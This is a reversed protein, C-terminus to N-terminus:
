QEDIEEREIKRKLYYCKDPMPANKPYDTIEFGAGQYCRVAPENHRYVFLGIEDYDYETKGIAILHEILRKGISEGRMAPNVILRAVHVRDNRESLQGFAAFEGAPNQLRFSALEGWYCDEYFTDRTFPYRFKPGGWDDVSEADAFWTMLEDLDADAVPILSWSM